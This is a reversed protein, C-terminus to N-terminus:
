VLSGGQVLLTELSLQFAGAEQIHKPSILLSQLLFEGKQWNELENVIILRLVKLLPGESIEFGLELHIKYTAILRPLFVRYISSIKEITSINDAGNIFEFFKIVTPIAPPFHQEFPEYNAWLRGSLLQAHSGYELSSESLFIKIEPEQVTLVWSGLLSFLTKEIWQYRVVRVAQEKATLFTQSM